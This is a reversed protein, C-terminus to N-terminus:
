LLDMHLGLDVNTYAINRSNRINKVDWTEGYFTKRLEGFREGLTRLECEENSTRKIPVSTIFLLGYKTLQTIASLLGAPSSIAQYSIFLDQASNLREVDWQVKEVDRHFAHLSDRSAYRSLFKAPYHSRHGSSWTIDVGDNSVRIGGENPKSTVPIDSTKHLKQRTSPHLCSPCQCSDRLWVYPYVHGNYVLADKARDSPASYSFLRRAVHRRLNFSIFSQTAFHRSLM